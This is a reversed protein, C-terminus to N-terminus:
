VNTEQNRPTPGDFTRSAPALTVERRSLAIMLNLPGVEEILKQFPTKPADQETVHSGRTQENARNSQAHSCNVGNEVTTLVLNEFGSFKSKRRRPRARLPGLRAPSPFGRPLGRPWM